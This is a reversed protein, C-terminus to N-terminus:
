VELFTVVELDSNDLEIEHNKYMSEAYEMAVTPDQAEISIQKRRTEVIEILIKM